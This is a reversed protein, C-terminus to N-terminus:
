AIKELHSLGLAEVVKAQLPAVHEDPAFAAIYGLSKVREERTAAIVAGGYAHAALVV